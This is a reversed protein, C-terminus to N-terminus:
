YQGVVAHDEGGSVGGAGAPASGQLGFQGGQADDEFVGPGVVGLGAALDFAEVLGEFFPQVALGWRGTDGVELGLEVGEGLVVVGHAGVAGATAAGGM